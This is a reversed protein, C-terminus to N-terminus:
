DTICDPKKTILTMSRKILFTSIGVFLITMLIRAILSNISVSLFLIAICLAIMTELRKAGGLSLHMRSKFIARECFFHLFVFDIAARAFWALAAGLIGYNEILIILAPLYLFIELIHIKATVEPKGVGQIFAYPIQALGNLMVGIAIVRFVRYSAEAFDVNIWIRLAEKAFLVCVLCVPFMIILVIKMSRRYLDPNIKREMGGNRSFIPFMAGAIASPIILLRTVIEWPTSYYTLASVSVISGIFFRDFNVMIPSIVNSVSIWGGYRILPLYEYKHIRFGMNMEPLLRICMMYYIICFLIRSIVIIIIPFIISNSFHLALLPGLFNVAGLAIRVYNALDFRMLGELIGRLGAAIVTFPIGVSLIYFARLLEDKDTSKIKFVTNILTHSAAALSIGGIIGLITMLFLAPWIVESLQKNHDQWNRESIFKTLARSLGFDALSFYGILVWAISLIGFREEGFGKILLPISFFAVALPIASGALNYLANKQVIRNESFDGNGM